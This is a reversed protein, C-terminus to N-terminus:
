SLPTDIEFFLILLLGIHSARIKIVNVPQERKETYSKKINEATLLIMYVGRDRDPIQINKPEFFLIVVFGSKCILSYLKM